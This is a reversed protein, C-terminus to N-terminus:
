KRRAGTTTKAGAPKRAKSRSKKVDAADPMSPSVASGFPLHPFVKVLEALESSLEEYRRTARKLARDVASPKTDGKEKPRGGPTRPRLPAVGGGLQDLALDFAAKDKKSSKKM